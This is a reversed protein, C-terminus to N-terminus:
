KEVKLRQCFTQRHVDSLGYKKILSRHLLTGYGKHQAFKYEPYKLALRTMYRDRTVKALISALGIIKEQSDGKIITKQNKYPTPAFLLGDLRVECEEPVLTLKKLGTEIGQRVAGSIGIKDIVKASVLVVTFDLRKKKKLQKALLFIAERNKEKVQKSDGVGPIMEWNFERPVVAVGVAVPGSLPGRGAEDVGVLWKVSKSM